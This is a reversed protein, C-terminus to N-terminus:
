RAERGHVPEALPKPIKDLREARLLTVFHEDKFLERLAGYVIRLM